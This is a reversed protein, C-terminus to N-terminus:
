APLYHRRLFLFKSPMLYSATIANNINISKTLNIETPLFELELKIDKKDNFYDVNFNTNEGNKKYTFVTTENHKINFSFLQGFTKCIIKSISENINTDKTIVIDLVNLIDSNDSKPNDPVNSVKEKINNIFICEKNNPVVINLFITIKITNIDM